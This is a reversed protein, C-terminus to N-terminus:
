LYGNGAESGSLSWPLHYLLLVALRYEKLICYVINVTGSNLLSDLLSLQSQHGSWIDLNGINGLLVSYFELRGAGGLWYDIDLIILTYLYCLIDISNCVLIDLM